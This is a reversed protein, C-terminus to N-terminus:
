FYFSVFVEFFITATIGGNKLFVKLQPGAVAARLDWGYWTRQYIGIFFLSLSFLFFFFYKLFFLSLLLPSFSFFFCFFFFFFSFLGSFATYLLLLVFTFTRTFSASIPSGIFGLGWFYIFFWNFLVNGLSSVVGIIISPIVVGQLQLYKQITKSYLLPFLGPLLLRCFTGTMTALEEDQGISLLLPGTAM